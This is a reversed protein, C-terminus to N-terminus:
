CKDFYKFWCIELLHLIYIGESGNCIIKMAILLVNTM